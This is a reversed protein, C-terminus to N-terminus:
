AQPLLDGIGYLAALDALHSPMSRVAFSRSSALCERRLQLLVALAASDFERLASADVVVATGAVGALEGSLAQLCGTAQSQTLTEPLVLM